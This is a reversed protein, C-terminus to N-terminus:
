ITHNIPICLATAYQSSLERGSVMVKKRILLMLFRIATVTKIYAMVSTKLSNEIEEYTLIKLASSGSSQSSM